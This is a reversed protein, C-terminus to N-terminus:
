WARIAVKADDLENQTLIGRSLLVGAVDITLNRGTDMLRGQVEKLRPMHERRAGFGGSGDLALTFIADQGIAAWPSDGKRLAVGQGAARLQALEDKTTSAVEASLSKLTNSYRHVVLDIAALTAEDLAISRPNLLKLAGVAHWDFGDPAGIAARLVRNDDASLTPAPTPQKAHPITDTSSAPARVQKVESSQVDGMPSQISQEPHVLLTTGESPKAHSHSEQKTGWWILLGISLGLPVAVSTVARAARTM